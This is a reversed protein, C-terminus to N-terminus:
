CTQLSRAKGPLAAPLKLGARRMLAAAALCILLMERALALTQASSHLLAELTLIQALFHLLAEQVGASQHNLCKTGALIEVSYRLLAEQVEEVQPDLCKALAPIEVSYRLLAELVERSHSDPCKLM